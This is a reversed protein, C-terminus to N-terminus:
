RDRISFGGSGDEWWIQRYFSPASAGNAYVRARTVTTDGCRDLYVGDLTSGTINLSEFLISGTVAYFFIGYGNAGLITMGAIEINSSSSEAYLGRSLSDVIMVNEFPVTVRDLYVSASLPSRGANSISCGRLFSREANSYQGLWVGVWSTTSEISGDNGFEDILQDISTLEVLNGPNGQIQLAGEVVRLSASQAFMIRVGAELILTAEPHQLTISGPAYYIGAPVSITAGDFISGSITHLDPDVISGSPPAVVETELADDAFISTYVISALSADRQSDFTKSRLEDFSVTGWFSPGIYYIGAQVDELQTKTALVFSTNTNSAVVNDRLTTLNAFMPSDFEILGYGSCSDWRNGTISLSPATASLVHYGGAADLGLFINDDADFSGTATGEICNGNICSLNEMTNNRVSLNRCSSFALGRFSAAATTSGFVNGELTAERLRFARVLFGSSADFYNDRFVVTSSQYSRDYLYVATTTGTVNFMSNRVQLEMSRTDVYMAYSNFSSRSDYVVADLSAYRNQFYLGISNGSPQVIVSEMTLRSLESALIESSSCQSFFKCDHLIVDASGGALFGTSGGVTEEVSLGEFSFAGTGAVSIGGGSCDKVTVNVYSGPRNSSMAPVSSAGAGSIVVNEMLVTQNEMASPQIVIQGWAESSILREFQIPEDYTAVAILSGQGISIFAGADVRISVGANLTLTGDIVLSGQSSYNGSSLVLSEGFPLIGSLVNGQLFPVFDTILPGGPTELFPNFLVRSFSPDDRGDVIRSVIVEAQDSSWFSASADIEPVDTSEQRVQIYFQDPEPIGIFINGSLTSEVEETPDPWENVVLWAPSTSSTVTLNEAFISSINTSTTTSAYSIDLINTAEINRFTNGQLELGSGLSNDTSFYVVMAARNSIRWAEIQNEVIYLREASITRVFLPYVSSREVEGGSMLNGSLELSCYYCDFLVGGASSDIENDVFRYQGDTFSRQTNIAYRDVNRLISGSVEVNVVSRDFYIGGGHEISANGVFVNSRLHVNVGNGGCRSLHSNVITFNNGDSNWNASTWRRSRVCDGECYVVSVPDLTLSGIGFHDIGINSHEISVHSFTSDVDSGLLIGSWSSMATSNKLRIPLDASGSATLTGTSLVSIGRLPAFEISTGAQLNFTANRVFLSLSCTYTGPPLTFTGDILIGGISGDSLFLQPLEIEQIVSTLSPGTLVSQFDVVARAEITTFGDVISTRLDTIDDQFSGWYNMPLPVLSGSEASSSLDLRVSTTATSNEFVNKSVSSFPYDEIHILDEGGMCDFFENQEFIAVASSDFSGRLNVLIPASCTEIFNGSFDATTGFGGGHFLYLLPNSSSSCQTITNNGVTWQDGYMYIAGNASDSITNSSVILNQVSFSRFRFRGNRFENDRIESLLPTTRWRDAYFSDRSSASVFTNGVISIRSNDVSGLGLYSSFFPSSFDSAAFTNETVSVVAVQNLFVAQTTSDKLVTTGVRTVYVSKDRVDVNSEINQLLVFGASQDQGGVYIWNQPNFTSDTSNAKLRIFQAVFYGQLREVDIAWGSNGFCEIIDVGLMYPAAGQSFDLPYLPGSGAFAIDAYQIVSGSTYTVDTDDMPNVSFFAASAGAGFSIGQWVGDMNDLSPLFSVRSDISGLVRLTGGSNVIGSEATTFRVEVGSEVSLTGGSVIEVAGTVVVPSDTISWTTVSDVVFPGDIDLANLTKFHFVAVLTLLLAKM